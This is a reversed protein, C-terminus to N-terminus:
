MKMKDCPFILTLLNGFFVYLTNIFGFRTECSNVFHTFFRFKNFM